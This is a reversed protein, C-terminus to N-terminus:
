VLYKGRVLMANVAVDIKTCSVFQKQIEDRKTRLTCRDM